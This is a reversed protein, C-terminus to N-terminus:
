VVVDPAIWIAVGEFSLSSGSYRGVLSSIPGGGVPGVGRDPGLCGGPPMLAHSNGGPPIKGSPPM